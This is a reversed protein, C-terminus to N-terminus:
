RLVLWLLFLCTTTQVALAGGFWWLLRRFREHGREEQRRMTSLFIDRREADLQRQAEAMRVSAERQEARREDIRLQNIDM